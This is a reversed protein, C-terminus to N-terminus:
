SYARLGFERRAGLARPPTTGGIIKPISGQTKSKPRPALKARKKRRAERNKKTDRGMPVVQGSRLDFSFPKPRVGKDFNFILGQVSRPTLAVHRERSVPDTWRITQVDVAVYQARPLSQKIAEAVMCHGSHAPIGDAIHKETVSIRTM